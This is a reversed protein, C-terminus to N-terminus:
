GRRALVFRQAARELVDIAVVFPELFEVVLAHRFEAIIQAGANGIAVGSHEVAGLFGVDDLHQLLRPQRRRSLDGQEVAAGALRELALDVTPYM